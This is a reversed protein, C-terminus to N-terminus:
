DKHTSSINKPNKPLTFYFTSGKGLQSEAWVKGGHAQIIHKVISLGLGTGGLEQSRGKDVRYFREFIRPLDERPIGIGDDQVSILVEEQNKESASLSVRGGEPTYKIANDLLNVFVQELYNRDAEVVLSPPSENKFISLNKKTAADKVFDLVDDILDALSLPELNLRLEKSEVKSLMLLDEVIKTLRDTHKKIVQVFQSAVEEKLAGELLTESYGKITTLPTRLEHSVNAVFDQRIKELEKLRTIDHFVVIAGRIGEDGKDMGEPSPYISVVNVEFTRGGPSPLTLEFARGKGDQMAGRIAEEMETNRVIELSTKGSVDTSISLLERFADNIMLIRGREDVVLVGEGMGKLIAQLYDKEKSIEEIKARLRVGIDRIAKSLKGLEDDSYAYAQRDTSDSALHIAANTMELIPRTLFRVFLYALPIVLVLTLLASSILSIKHFYFIFGQIILFLLLLFIILVMWKWQLKM